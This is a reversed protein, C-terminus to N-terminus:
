VEVFSLWISYRTKESPTEKHSSTSSELHNESDSVVVEGWGLPKVDPTALSRGTHELIFRMARGVIGSAGMSYTKGSGSPGYAIILEDSNDRFLRKLQPLATVSFVLSYM